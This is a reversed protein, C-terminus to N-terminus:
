EKEIPFSLENSVVLVGDTYVMEAGIQTVKRCDSM